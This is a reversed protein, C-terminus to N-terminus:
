DGDASDISNIRGQLILANDSHPLIAGM